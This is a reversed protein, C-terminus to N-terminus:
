KDRSRITGLKFGEQPDALLPPRSMMNPEGGEEGFLFAAKERSPGSIPKKGSKLFPSASKPPSSNHASVTSVDPELMWSFSSNAISSRTPVPASPRDPTSVISKSGSYENHPGIAGSSSRIASYKVPSSLVSVSPSNPTADILALATKDTDSVSSPSEGAFASKSPTQLLAQPRSAGTLSVGSTAPQVEEDPLPMTSDELYVKVFEVKAIALDMAKVCDEKSGDTSVSTARLDIMAQDLMRALQLNRMNLATISAKPSPISRGDDLSWRMVDSTRRGISSPRPTQLGQVNKKVEGMADRVAQNIGLKEGRDFVGRAAGQLLAEVGGQQQLFRAPSSLPSRTRSLKQKSGQNPDLPTSPWSALLAQPPAKAGYKTIIESGGAASFNDRLYIADDVFTQPGNPPSPSPYKLLLMLAVSYNAEIVECLM